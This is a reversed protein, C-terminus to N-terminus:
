DDRAELPEIATNAALLQRSARGFLDTIDDGEEAQRLLVLTARARAVHFRAAALMEGAEPDGRHEVELRDVREEVDALRVEINETFEPVRAQWSTDVNLETDDDDWDHGSWREVVRAKETARESKADDAIVAVLMIALAAAVVLMALLFRAAVAALGAIALGRGPRREALTIVGTIVAATSFGFLGLVLTAIALGQGPSETGPASERTEM